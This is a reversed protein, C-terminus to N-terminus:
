QEIQTVALCGGGWFFCVCVCVRVGGAWWMSIPKSPCRFAQELGVLEAVLLHRVADNNFAASQAGETGQPPAVPATVFHGRCSSGFFRVTTHNTVADDDEDRALAQQTIPVTSPKLLLPRPFRMYQTM